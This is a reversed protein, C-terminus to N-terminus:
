KCHRDLSRDLGLARDRSERAKRSLLVADGSCFSLEPDDAFKDLTHILTAYSQDDYLFIYREAGKAMALINMERRMAIARWSRHIRANQGKKQDPEHAGTGQSSGTIPDINERFSRDVQRTFQKV